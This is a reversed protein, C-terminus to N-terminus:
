TARRAMSACHLCFFAGIVVRDARSLAGIAFAGLFIWTIQFASLRQDTWLLGTSRRVAQAVLFPWGGWRDTGYYYLNFPTIPRDDNSM